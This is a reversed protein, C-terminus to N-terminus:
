YGELRGSAILEQLVDVFGQAASGLKQDLELLDAYLLGKVVHAEVIVFGEQDVNVFVVVLEGLVDEILDDLVWLHCLKNYARM